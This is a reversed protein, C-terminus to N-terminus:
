FCINILIYFAADRVVSQLVARTVINIQGAPKSLGSNSILLLLVDNSFCLCAFIWCPIYVNVFRKTLFMFTSLRNEMMHMALPSRPQSCEPWTKTDSRASPPIFSLRFPQHHHHHRHPHSGRNNSYWQPPTPYSGCLTEGEGKCASRCVRRHKRHSAYLFACVWVSTPWM